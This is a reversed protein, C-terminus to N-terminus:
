LFVDGALNTFAVCYRIISSKGAGTPGVLAIKEGPNITFSLDKIIYDDDKYAFWVNEFRIEGM